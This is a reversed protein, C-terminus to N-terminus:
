VYMGCSGLTVRSDLQQVGKLNGLHFTRNLIRLNRLHLLNGLRHKLLKMPNPHATKIQSMLHISERAEANEKHIENLKGDFLIESNLPVTRLAIKAQDALNKSSDM